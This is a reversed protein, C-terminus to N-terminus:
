LFVLPVGKEICLRLIHALQCADGIHRHLLPDDNVQAWEDSIAELRPMIAAHDAPSLDDGGNDPHDLLPELTTSVV